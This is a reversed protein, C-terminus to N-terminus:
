IHPEDTGTVPYHPHLTLATWLTDFACKTQAIGVVYHMSSGQSEFATDAM